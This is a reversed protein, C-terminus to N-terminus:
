QEARKVIVPSHLIALFSPFKVKGLGRTMWIKDSKVLKPLKRFHRDGIRKSGSQGQLEKGVDQNGDGM